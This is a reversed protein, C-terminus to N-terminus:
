SMGIKRVHVDILIGEGDFIWAGGVGWEMLPFWKYWARYSGLGTSVLMEGMDVIGNRKESPTAQFGRGLDIHLAGFDDRSELINIVDEINTGLPTIQLIHNRIMGIPRRYPQQIMQIATVLMILALISLLIAM